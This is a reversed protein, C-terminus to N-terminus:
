LSAFEDPQVQERRTFCKTIDEWRGMLAAAITLVLATLSSVQAIFNLTTQRLEEQLLFIFNSLSLSFKVSVGSGDVTLAQASSFDGLSISQLQSQLGVLPKREGPALFPFVNV